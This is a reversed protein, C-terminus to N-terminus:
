AADADLNRNACRLPEYEEGTVWLRHLLVALKRAVAIVARKKGIKGGREAIACGWRRLDTDPGFHGIIYQASQVLLSRLLVNGAKTIRLQPQQSGSEQRRPRLGLYSGVARSSPFRSPDDIVLLFALSTVPGVGPVQRLLEAEPHRTLLDAVQADAARIRATLDSITQLVPELAPRLDDPLADAARKAFAESSCSPLRAGLSKVQGRVHNILKVRAGVLAARARLVALETQAQRGRHRVPSLLSPDLRAVRALYLADVRDDKSDNEYILRLKRPNAVLVEHGCAALLRSVWPSHTGAEIAIRFRGSSSFRANFAEPTTKIKGEELVEGDRGLVCVASTKDGLDIGIASVEATGTSETM